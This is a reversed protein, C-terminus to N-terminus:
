PLCRTTVAAGDASPLQQLHSLANALSLATVHREQVSSSSMGYPFVTLVRGGRPMQCVIQDILHRRSIAASLIVCFSLALTSACSAIAWAFLM